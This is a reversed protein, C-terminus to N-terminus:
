YLAVTTVCPGFNLRGVKGFALPSIYASNAGKKEEGAKKCVTAFIMSLVYRDDIGEM